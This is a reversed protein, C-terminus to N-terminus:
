THICAMGGIAHAGRKHMSEVLLQTYAKMFPVTMTIQDRDPFTVNKVDRYRKIASFIYDWRGANMGLSHDKLSYLIEDM